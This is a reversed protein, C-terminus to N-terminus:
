QIWLILLIGTSKKLNSLILKQPEDGFLFYRSNKSFFQKKYYKCYFFFRRFNKSYNNKNKILYLEKLKNEKKLFFEKRM